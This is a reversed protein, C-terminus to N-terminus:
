NCLRRLMFVPRPIASHKEDARVVCGHLDFFAKQGASGDRRWRMPFEKAERLSDRRMAVRQSLGKEEEAVLGERDM